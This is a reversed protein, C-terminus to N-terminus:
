VFSRTKPSWVKGGVLIEVGFYCPGEFSILEIGADQIWQLPASLSWKSDLENREKHYIVTTIGSGIISRACDACAAWPTVLTLGTTKIGMSAANYIADREAHEMRLLKESRDVINPKIGKYFHNYGTTVPMLGNYEGRRALVAGNQTSQDPSKAAVCYALGMLNQLDANHNIM